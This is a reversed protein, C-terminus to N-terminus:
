PMVRRVLRPKSQQSLWEDDSDLDIVELGTNLRKAPHQPTNMTRSDEDFMDRLDVGSSPTSERSGPDSQLGPPPLSASHSRKRPNILPSANLDPCATQNALASEPVNTRFASLGPFTPRNRRWSSIPLIVIRSKSATDETIEIPERLAAPPRRVHAEFEDLTMDFGARKIIPQLPDEGNAIRRADEQSVRTKGCFRACENNGFKFVGSVTPHDGHITRMHTSLGAIGGFFKGYVYRNSNTSVTAGCVHCWIVYWVEDLFVVSRYHEKDLQTYQAPEEGSTNSDRAASGSKAKPKVDTSLRSSNTSSAISTEMDSYPSRIHVPERGDRIRAMDDASVTRLLNLDMAIRIVEQRTRLVETDHKKVVHQHYGQLGGFYKERAPGRAKCVYCILERNVDEITVVHTYITEPCALPLEPYVWPPRLRTTRTDPRHAISTVEDVASLADENIESLPSSTRQQVVSNTTTDKLHPSAIRSQSRDQEAILPIGFM